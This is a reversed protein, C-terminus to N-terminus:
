TQGCACAAPSGPALDDLAMAGIAGPRISGGTGM